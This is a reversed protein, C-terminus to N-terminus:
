GAAAVVLWAGFRVCCESLLVRCCRVLGAAFRLCSQCCCGSLLMRCRCWGSLELACYCGAAAGAVLSWLLCPVRIAAGQCYCGAAAGALLNWLAFLVRVCAGQLLVRHRSWCGLGFICCTVKQYQFYSGWYKMQPFVRGHRILREGMDVCGQCAVGQWAM